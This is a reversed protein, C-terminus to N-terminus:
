TDDGPILSEALAQYAEGSAILCTAGSAFTGVITWTGTETNAYLEVVANNASLGLAQRAEGYRRELQTLVAERPGCQSASQADATGPPVLALAIIAACRKM